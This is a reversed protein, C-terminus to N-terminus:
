LKQVFFQEVDMWSSTLIGGTGLKVYLAPIVGNAHNFLAQGHKSHHFLNNPNTPAIASANPNHIWLPPDGPTIKALMDVDQRYGLTAGASYATGGTLGFFKKLYTAGIMNEIDAMPVPYDDFVDTAWREVDYTSQTGQAAVAKVRTSEHLVPDLSGSDAMEDSFAIWLATGGGASYGFLGIRDKDINFAAAYHRIYQLCRRSDFLCRKVGIQDVDDQLRRYDISAFAINNALLYNIVSTAQGYIASKDGGTFRGGHFFMVLPTPAISTSPLLIDFKTKAHSDYCLDEFFNPSGAIGAPLSPSPKM